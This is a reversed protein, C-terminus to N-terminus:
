HQHNISDLMIVPTRRDTNYLGENSWHRLPVIGQTEDLNGEPCGPPAMQVVGLYSSLSARQKSQSGCRALLKVRVRIEAVASIL